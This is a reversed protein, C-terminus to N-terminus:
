QSVLPSPHTTKLLPFPALERVLTQNFAARPNLPPELVVRIIGLKLLNSNEDLADALGLLLVLDGTSAEVWVNATTRGNGVPMGGLSSISPSDFSVSYLDVAADHPLSAAALRPGAALAFVAVELAINLTPM